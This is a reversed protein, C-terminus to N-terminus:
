ATLLVLIALFSCHLCHRFSNEHAPLSSCPQWYIAAVSACEPEGADQADFTTEAAHVHTVDTATVYFSLLDALDVSNKLDDRRSYNAWATARLEQHVCADQCLKEFQAYSLM